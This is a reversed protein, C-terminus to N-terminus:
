KKIVKIVESKGDKDTLKLIYIIPLYSSLDISKGLAFNRVLQLLKGNISYLRVSQLLGSENSTIFIRDATPNPMVTISKEGNYKVSIIFSFKFSGGIDVLRLRYYNVGNIPSTHLTGYTKLANSNGAAAAKEATSIIRM